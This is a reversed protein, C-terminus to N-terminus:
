PQQAKRLVDSLKVPVGGQRKSEDAAEMFTYLEITEEPPVPSVKTQFFHVIEAVLPVYDTKGSKQDAYNKSGFVTVKAPEPKTRLAVLVGTRGGSWSGVVVDADDSHTRTVTQCGTGMVTYLGETPHIAYWFLDPHHPEIPGPGYSIATRLEGIDVKKLESLTEYYRYASSTFVPVGAEKALRFIELVDHLSGALPKDIFLPKKAAIVPRAQELHPRGDVSELLVCDVDRCLEEISGVLKVGYDKQIQATFGEVRSASNAVDPSFSKYAEVVKAGAVHQPADAKNLVKTFEIVHSTDLGIIGVRLDDAHSVLPTVLALGCF